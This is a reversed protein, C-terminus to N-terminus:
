RIVRIIDTGSFADGDLELGSFTLPVFDSSASGKQERNSDTESTEDDSIVNWIADMDFKAVLNGTLDAETKSVEVGELTLSAVDVTDYPLLTRVTVYTGASSSSFVDPAIDITTDFASVIGVGVFLALCLSVLGLLIKKM